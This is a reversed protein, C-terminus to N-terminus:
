SVPPYWVPTGKHFNTPLNDPRTLSTVEALGFDALKPVGYLPKYSAQISSADEYGVFVLRETLLYWAIILCSCKSNMPKIDCHLIFSDRLPRGFNVSDLADYTGNDLVRMAEVLQRFVKWLFLEPLYQFWARYRTRIKDLDGYPCYEFYYRWQHSKNYYKFNRLYLINMHNSRLLQCM